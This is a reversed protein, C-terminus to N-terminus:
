AYMAITWESAANVAPKKITLTYASKDHTFQLQRNATDSSTLVVSKPSNSIGLIVIREIEAKTKFPTSGAPKDRMLNWVSNLLGDDKPAPPSSVDPFQSKTENKAALKGQKFTFKMYAFAGTKYDFSHFDDIYLDGEAEGKPDLALTLTYPDDHSLSSSRRIRNKRPIISGGRQFLPIKDLPSAVKVNNGGRYIKHDDLHYWYQEKGPLYVDSTVQGPETVPKVLLQDGVLFEDEMKFTSKDEPYEVWLPRIIPTGDQSAHFFLTYWLPLLAYRTRLADRIVNKYVDDFLWPERRKTDLHAHARLFPTFVGTQYWRALLEPEPNKFFGGVDAGAFPLGTVGLSLIMPISAKLHSWEAMNDGTWIPGYRQTGAFFARSLVFPRDKGGSRQILGLNTAKHFYMGYINHVDRHEWDGYHITDKHMTIEPGHFVSPENMDNWIFLNTTSGKYQDHSIKSAWWERIKPNTFDPWSSSGSWCWNEYEGGDKNKIYHGLSTAEEHVHYDSTRKMHPDVITVMKRGKSAINEQMAEPNPFKVKDWTMYRKGDTHEIDLWLVDYPIDHKDFSDDVSKVDEEDNYNWRCQHYAIGFLPPLSTPGTLSAYQKFVDHPRPGMMVFVDIIGSESFWHTDVQPVEEEAKRADATSIDVWTEAANMWFVGVTKSASHALMVPISGYLAMRSDLEYEFVDLNYLRYPESGITSKLALSDAHEPIGYVHEVGPFSIDLGVSSPGRPKSDHHEKFNEEWMGEEHKEDEVVKEEEQKQEENPEDGEISPPGPPAPQLPEEKPPEGVKKARYHEFNLLGRTNISVVVENGVLFDLRLPKYTVIINSNEDFSVHMSNAEEKTIKYSVLKPETKLADKVEYRPRIPKLENIKFRATNKELTSLSLHLEVNTKTNLVTAEIVSDTKSLSEKVLVYPSEGAQLARNRKCFSSQDCTKFNNKDVCLSPTVTLVIVLLARLIPSNLPDASM